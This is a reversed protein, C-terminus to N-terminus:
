YRWRKMSASSPPMGEPFFQYLVRTNKNACKLVEVLRTFYKDSYYGARMKDIPVKFVRPDLRLREM